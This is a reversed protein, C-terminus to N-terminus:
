DMAILQRYPGDQAILEQHTGRQAVAGRDLVIIEDCDRITSLRHAVILCTCGRCRINQHIEFETAADLASTAEDLVLVTPDNLLARALEIRQVQGGSFNRGDEEIRSGYGGLRLNVDDHICADRAARAVNADTSTDDWMTINDRITGEFLFTEQDAIALSDALTQRPITSREIGDLLIQGTWPEYLGSVLRALTSKGSGSAGVIAVRSGPRLTLDLDRILPPELRSYGFTVRRVELRGTLKAPTNVPKALSEFETYCVKARLVDDLRDVGAKVEHLSNGFEFLQGVPSLFTLMLAEFAALMGMSMDGRMVRWGGLGLVLATSLTVTLSPLASLVSWDRALAHDANVAQAYFGAWRSFFDSESGTAKLMEIDMMGGMATGVVRGRAQALRQNLDRRWRGAAHLTLLNVLATGVAVLSLTVDYQIMLIAYFAILAVNIGTTALEGSLLQAVRDNIAVRSAIEGSFRQALFQMPLHLVHWFFRASATLALKTELRLLYARQLWTLAGIVAATGAMALLLPTIWSRWGNSGLVDDVFIRTFTPIIMKPVVLALGALIVFAIGSMSHRLRGYLAMTLSPRAGGRRFEPGREFTLAVGTFSEDLETESVVRRGYRPDNLYVRGSRGFGELVLFHNFNWHIIMPLPMQRLGRPEQKYGKARLGYNAAARALNSAKSGDRSVGAAIRLEELPVFRRHYALVMALSAAGCEVAEMQLVTPVRVRRPQRHHTRTM